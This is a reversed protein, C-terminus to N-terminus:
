KIWTIAEETASCAMNVLKLAQDSYVSGKIIEESKTAILQELEDRIAELQIQIDSLEETIEKLNM